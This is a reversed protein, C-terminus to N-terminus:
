RNVVVPKSIIGAETRFQMSYMGNPLNSVDVEHTASTGLTESRVVMGLTNVMQMSSAGDIGSITLSSSTPNPALHIGSIPLQIEEEVASPALPIGVLGYPNFITIWENITTNTKYWINKNKDQIIERSGTYGNPSDPDFFPANYKNYTTWSTGSYWHLGEQSSLWINKNNDIIINGYRYKTPSKIHKWTSGDFYSVVNQTLNSQDPLFNKFLYMCWIGGDKDCVIQNLYNSTISTFGSVRINEQVTDRITVIGGAETPIWIQDLSDLCFNNSWYVYSGVPKKIKTSGWTFGNYRSITLDDEYNGRSICIPYGNKGIVVYRITDSLIGSNSKNFVTTFKGDYRAIGQYTGYWIIGNKDYVMSSSYSAMSSNLITDTEWHQNRFHSLYIKDNSSFSTCINGDQDKSLAGIVTFGYSQVIKPTALNTWQVESSAIISCTATDKVDGNQAIITITRIGTDQFTPKIQLTINEYPPNPTSTSYTVAGRFSTTATSLFVTADYGNLPKIAISYIATEGLKVSQVSPTISLEFSQAALIAPTLLLAFFLVFAKM